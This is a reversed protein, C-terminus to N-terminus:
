ASEELFRLRRARARLLAEIRSYGDELAYRPVPPRRLEAARERAGQRARLARAFARAEALRRRLYGIHKRLRSIRVTCGCHAM